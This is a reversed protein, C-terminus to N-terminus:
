KNHCVRCFRASAAPTSKYDYRMLKPYRTVAHPSHCSTCQMRSNKDLLDKRVTDGLGSPTTEPSRLGFQRVRMALAADYTFSIPHSHALDDPRFVQERRTIGPYSGDHCGLCVKSPGDPQSIDTHLANFTKSSYTRYFGAGGATHLTSWQTSYTSFSAASTLGTQHSTHCDTCILDAHPGVAGQPPYFEQHCSACDGNAASSGSPYSMPGGAPTGFTGWGGCAALAAVAALVLGLRLRVM